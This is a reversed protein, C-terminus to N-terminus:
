KTEENKLVIERISNYGRILEEIIESGEGFVGTLSDIILKEAAIRNREAEIYDDLESQQSSIIGKLAENGARETNYLGALEINRATREADSRELQEITGRAEKLATRTTTCGSLIIIFIIIFSIKYM